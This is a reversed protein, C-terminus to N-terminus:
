KVKAAAVEEACTTGEPEALNTNSDEAMLLDDGRPQRIIAAVADEITSADGPAIYCGEVHCRQQRTAMQFRFVNPVHFCLVEFTFHEAECYFIAVSSRHPIPAKTAAVRYGESDREYVGGTFKTEQFVGLGINAQSVRCLVSELGGNRDNCINYSGFCIKCVTERRDGRVRGTSDGTSWCM